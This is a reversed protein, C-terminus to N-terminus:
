YSCMGDDDDHDDHHDHDDHDDTPVELYVHYITLGRTM